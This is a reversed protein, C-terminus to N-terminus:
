AVIAPHFYKKNQLYVHEDYIWVLQLYLDRASSEIWGLYDSSVTKHKRGSTKWKYILSLYAYYFIYVLYIDKKFVFPIINCVSETVKKQKVIPYRTSKM